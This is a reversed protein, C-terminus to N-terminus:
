GDLDDAAILAASCYIVVVARQGYSKDQALKVIHEYFLGPSTLTSLPEIVLYDLTASRNSCFSV